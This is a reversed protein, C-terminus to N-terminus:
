LEGPSVHFAPSSGDTDVGFISNLIEPKKQDRIIELERLSKHKNWESRNKDAEIVTSAATSGMKMKKVRDM